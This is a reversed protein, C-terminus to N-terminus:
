DHQSELELHEATNQAGGSKDRLAETLEDELAELYHALSWAVTHGQTKLEIGGVVAPSTEFQVETVIAFRDHVTDRIRGRLDEPLDFASSVVIPQTSLRLTDALAQHDDGDLARVRALFTEVIQRELGANALDTLARRAVAYTQDSVRQRLEHLFTAQEQQLARQWRAQAEDVETRALKLAETRQAEVDLRAERLLRDHAAQLDANKQHYAAAERAAAQQAQEAEALRSAIGAERENMAKVIPGYLFRRLLLVLVLFNVIQAVVTFGDILM